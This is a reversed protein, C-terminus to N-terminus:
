ERKYNGTVYSYFYFFSKNTPNSRLYTKRNYRDRDESAQIIVPLNCKYGEPRRLCAGRGSYNPDPHKVAAQVM